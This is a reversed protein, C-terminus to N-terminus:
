RYMRIFESLNAQYRKFGSAGPIKERAPNVNVNVPQCSKHVTTAKHRSIDDCGAEYNPTSKLVAQFFAFGIRGERRTKVRCQLSM